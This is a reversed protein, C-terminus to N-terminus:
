KLSGLYAMLDAVQQATMERVLLDPMLSQQQPVLQEINETPIHHVQDQADRLIVEKDDKQTLLGTVLNGDNTEILYTIYKPDILKSPELISELLQVRTLKKGITTLEPGLEKGNKDIRHCNKCSVGTTEFFVQKGRVPDGSLSLIQEPQVVSGLRKIREEPTLFREFLDRVSVDSHQTAKEITLSLAAPPLERSDVSRLLLLAGSTSSLLREVIEVQNTSAETAHLRELNAAEEDRLKKSSDNSTTETEAKRPLQRL